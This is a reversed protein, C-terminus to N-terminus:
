FREQQPTDIHLYGHIVTAKNFPVLHSEGTQFDVVTLIMAAFRVQTVVGIRRRYSQSNTWSVKDGYFFSPDNENLQKERM